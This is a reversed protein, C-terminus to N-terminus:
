LLHWYCRRGRRGGRLPPRRWEVPVPRETLGESVALSDDPHGVGEDGEVLSQGEDRQIEPSPAVGLHVDGKGLGNNSAEGSVHGSVEELGEGDLSPEIDVGLEYAPRLSWWLISDRKLARALDMSAAERMSSRVAECTGLVLPTM